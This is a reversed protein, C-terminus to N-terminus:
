RGEKENETFYANISANAWNWKSLILEATTLNYNVLFLNFHWVHLIIVSLLHLCEGELDTLM